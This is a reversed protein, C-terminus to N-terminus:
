YSSDVTPKITFSSDIGLSDSVPDTSKLHVRKHMNFLVLRVRYADPHLESM